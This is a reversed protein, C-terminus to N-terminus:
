KSSLSPDERIYNFNRRPKQGLLIAPIEEVSERKNPHSQSAIQHDKNFSANKLAPKQDHFPESPHIKKFGNVLKLL